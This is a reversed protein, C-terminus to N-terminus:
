FSCMLRFNLTRTLNVAILGHLEETLYCTSWITKNVVYYVHCLGAVRKLYVCTGRQNAKAVAVVWPCGCDLARADCARAQNKESVRVCVAM